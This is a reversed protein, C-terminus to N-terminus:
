VAHWPPAPDPHHPTSRLSTFSSAGAAPRHRPVHACCHAGGDQDREIETHAANM